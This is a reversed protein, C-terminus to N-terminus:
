NILSFHITFLLVHLKSLSYFKNSWRISYKAQRNSSNKIMLSDRQHQIIYAFIWVIFSKWIIWHIIKRSSMRSMSHHMKLDESILIRKWIAHSITLLKFPCKKLHIVIIITETKLSKDANLDTEIVLKYM